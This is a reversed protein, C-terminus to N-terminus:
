NSEPAYYDGQHFQRLQRATPQEATAAGPAYYDGERIQRSEQPSVRQAITGSPAYYDGHQSWNPTQAFAVTPMVLALAVILYSASIKKM